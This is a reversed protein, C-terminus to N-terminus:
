IQRRITQRTNWARRTIQELEKEQRRIRAAAFLNWAAMGFALVMVLLLFLAVNTLIVVGNM